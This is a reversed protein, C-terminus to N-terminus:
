ARTCVLEELAYTCAEAIAVLIVEAVDRVPRNCMRAPTGLIGAFFEEM